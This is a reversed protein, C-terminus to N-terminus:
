TDVRRDPGRSGSHIIADLDAESFRLHRGVKTCPICGAAAKKRLWSAPVQLLAAAQEPTHLLRRAAQEPEQARPEIPPPAPPTSNPGQLRTSSDHSTGPNRPPHHKTDSAETSSRISERDPRLPARAKGSTLPVLPRKM